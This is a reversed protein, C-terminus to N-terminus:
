SGRTAAAMPAQMERTRYAPACPDEDFYEVLRPASFADLREIIKPEAVRVQEEKIVTPVPVVVAFDKVEGQFDNAMTLVTKNGDRAIVVQSAQNYLKTDAKAVYFGCFAIATPAFSLVAILAIILPIFLNFKKM